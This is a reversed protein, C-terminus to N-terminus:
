PTREIRTLRLEPSTNEAERRANRRTEMRLGLDPSSVELTGTDLYADQIPFSMRNTITEWISYQRYETFIRYSAAVRSYTGHISLHCNVQSVGAQHQKNRGHEPITCWHTMEQQSIEHRVVPPLPNTGNEGAARILLERLEERNDEVHDKATIWPSNNTANISIVALATFGSIALAILAYQGTTIKRM